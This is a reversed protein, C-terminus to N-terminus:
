QASSEDVLNVFLRIAEAEVPETRIPARSDFMHAALCGVIWITRQHKLSARVRLVM